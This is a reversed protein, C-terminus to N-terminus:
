DPELGGPMSRDNIAPNAAFPRYLPDGILTLRWSAYPSTRWYCEALTWKGTLLLPFFEEPLPFAGLFPEDVAGITAAVGNQIMKVCWEESAGQRLNQAEFSAIHWGVAGHIWTFAPVYKRLSYWGVYLAADPASGEPLLAEKEDFVTHMKTNSALFTNLSRLHRDYDPLLGGADIYFTGILGSKEAALSEKVIQTADFVTPGDIRATMYAYEQMKEASTAKRWYMPNPFPGAIDYGDVRLLVLESDLAADAKQPNVRSALSSALQYALVAGGVADHLETMMQVNQLTIDLNAGATLRQAAEEIQKKLAAADPAGPPKSQTVYRELGQLGFADLYIAMIQRFAIQQKVPDSILAAERHKSALLLEMDKAIQPVPSMKQTDVTPMDFLKGLPKLGNTQPTPFRKAVTALLKHNIALRNHTKLVMQQCYQEVQKENEGVVPGQVRVPVGWVVCICRVQATLEREAIIQRLPMVIQSQYDIRSIDYATTTAVLALNKDPIGRQAAYFKALKVSDESNSNGVVLVQDPTLASATSVALAITALLCSLAARHM